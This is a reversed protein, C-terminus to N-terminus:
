SQKQPVSSPLNVLRSELWISNQLNDRECELYMPLSSILQWLPRTNIGRDNTEKLFVDRSKIDECLISNLWFNSKCNAPEDVFTFDSSSFHKKYVEAIKRKEYLFYDLLELQAIGLAANINPMRYNFGVADHYFEYKHDVKATTTIHKAKQGGELNKSLIMGGGGTTIIKNGNFSLAGFEGFTGTHQNKYFSGVSEASDEVLKINWKTCIERIEDLLAPHGFTHMPVLARVIKKTKKHETLGDNNLSANEELYDEIAHPCISLTRRSIDLFIPEAGLYNIANCSAVFSVAQTIVLDNKKVGALLLSTHLAATGNVTATAKKSGTYEEINREFENVFRGVSSVFNTDIAHLANEKEKGIMLPQHLPIAENTQYIGRILEETEDFM